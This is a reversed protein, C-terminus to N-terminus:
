FNYSDAIQKLRKVDSELNLIHMKRHCNPCLAVVNKPIDSGGQSLWEIHHVELYPEGYNNEFPADCKCLQCKGHAMKKALAVIIPNRDYVTALMKTKRPELDDFKEAYGLLKEVSMEVIEAIAPTSSNNIYNRLNNLFDTVDENESAHNPYWVNSMGPFGKGHAPAYPVSFTRESEPLLYANKSDVECLYSINEEKIALKNRPREKYSKHYVTANKYWGIVIQGGSPAKAIFVIDIGDVKEGFQISPNIFRLDIGVFDKSMVYGYCMNNEIRFNWMEGAEGHEAPWSGGNQIPALGSYHKMYGLRFVLLHPM